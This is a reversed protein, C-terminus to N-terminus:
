KNTFKPIWRSIRTRLTIMKPREPQAAAKVNIEYVTLNEPFSFRKQVYFKNQDGRCIKDSTNRM